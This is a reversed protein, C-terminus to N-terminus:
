VVCEIQFSFSLAYASQKLMIDELQESIQLLIMICFAYCICGLELDSHWLVSHMSIMDFYLAGVLLCCIALRMWGLVRFLYNCKCSVSISNVELHSICCYEAVM